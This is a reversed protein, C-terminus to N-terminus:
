IGYLMREVLSPFGTGINNILVFRDASWGLKSSYGDLMVISGGMDVESVTYVGKPINPAPSNKCFVKDGRKFTM